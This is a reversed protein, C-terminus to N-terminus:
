GGFILLSPWLAIQLLKNPGYGLMTRKSFLFFSLFSASWKRKVASSGRTCSTSDNLSRRCACILADLSHSSLFFFYQLLLFFFFSFFFSQHGASSCFFVFFFFFLFLYCLGARM